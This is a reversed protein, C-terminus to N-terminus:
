PLNNTYIMIGIFALFLIIVDYIDIYMMQPRNIYKDEKMEKIMYDKVLKYGVNEYYERVGVGAIIAVKNIEYVRTINEAEKILRKGFGMHQVSKHNKTHHKVITGYVHLERIFACDNLEKYILNDNTHNIRLRLFGYLIEQDPSEFSIFFETSDIGNYERVFLEAKDINEINNKVERSRICNSKIHDLKQRLNVDKNGGIINQNPIDRIIRNIRMWPFVGKLVVTLVKILDEKNESYPKYTGDEYWEKILTWDVVSCPYIKLQDAQLDPRKLDYKFYHSSVEEISNIGFIENFMNIDIEVSSSPLDPMIHFDTKGGNQKWLNNGKITDETHCGRKITDLIDDDIHQIGLQIRTVNYKRYRKIRKLTVCDPRTELTLGIIRHKSHQAINIEKELTLKETIDRRDLNNISHYIDRIFEDQYGIPYHDWTGGLVLVEIKDIVHGCNMLADARDYIQLIPDFNNRNARLVAPETSLYSRPQAIKVGIIEDNEKFPFPSEKDMEVMFTSETFKCCNYVNYENGKFIIYNLVRILHIDDQTSVNFSSKSINVENIILNIRIEPENPCYACNEGCTFSQEVEEGKYNTYKPTPSTLITIVAVGSHSRVKKKMSFQIFSDNKQIENKSLLHHYVKRLQPKNPCLKYKSRLSICKKSYDNETKFDTKVLDKVFEIINTNQVLEEIDNM